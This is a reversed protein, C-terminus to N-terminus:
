YTSQLRTGLAAYEDVTKSPGTPKYNSEAVDDFDQDSM